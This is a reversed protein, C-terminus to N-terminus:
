ARTPIGDIGLFKINKERGADKAARYTGYAVPDNHGYVLDIDDHAKLATAM